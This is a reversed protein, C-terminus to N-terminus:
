TDSPCEIIGRSDHPSFYVSLLLHVTRLAILFIKLFVFFLPYLHTHLFAQYDTQNDQRRNKTQEQVTLSLLRLVAADQAYDGRRTRRNQSIELLHAGPVEDGSKRRYLGEHVVRAPPFQLGEKRFRYIDVLLVGHDGEVQPLSDLKVVARIEVGIGNGIIELIQLVHFPELIPLLNLGDIDEIRIRYAKLQRLVVVLEDM